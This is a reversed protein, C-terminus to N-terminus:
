RHSELINLRQAARCLKKDQSWIRSHSLRASALLHIDVVGLGSGGLSHGRVFDLFESHSVQPAKPLTELLNLVAVRPYLHGCALEEMILPHTIIVGELLLDALRAERGRFHDIWVSTDALIM